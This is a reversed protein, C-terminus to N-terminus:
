VPEAEAKGPDRRHRIKNIKVCRLCGYSLQISCHVESEVGRNRDLQRFARYVGHKGSHFASEVSRRSAGFLAPKVGKSTDGVGPLQLRIARNVITATRSNFVVTQPTVNQVHRVVIAWSVGGRALDFFRIAQSDVGRRPM